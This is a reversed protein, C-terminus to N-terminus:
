RCTPANSAWRPLQPIPGSCRPHPWISRIRESFLTRGSRSRLNFNGGSFGGRSVDYPSSNLAAGVMADRPLDSGSFSQGNLTTSNQESSLGLVSFGSPDGDQGPVFLVGPSNAAMAALDGQQSASLNNPNVVRETGAVDPSQENQNVRNRNATIRVEDLTTSTRSLQADAVLIEEDAVRKVKFPRPAFGISRFSVFYDGGGGPFTVM